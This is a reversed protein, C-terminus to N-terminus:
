SLDEGRALAKRVRRQEGYRRGQEEMTDMHTRRINLTSLPAGEAFREVEQRSRQTEVRSGALWCLGTLGYGPGTGCIRNSPDDILGAEHLLEFLRSCAIAVRCAQRAREIGDEHNRATHVVHWADTAIHSVARTLKVLGSLTRYSHHRYSGGFADVRGRGIESGLRARDLEAAAHHIAAWDVEVTYVAPLAPADLPAREGTDQIAWALHESTLAPADAFLCESGDAYRALHRGDDLRWVSEPATDRGRPAWQIDLRTATTTTAAISM